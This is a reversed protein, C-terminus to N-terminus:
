FLSLYKSRALSSLFSQFIYTFTIGTTIPACPVTRLLKSLAISSNSIPHFSVIRVVTNNLDVLISHFFRPSRLLSVTGWVRTFPWWSGRTHFLECSIGMIIRYNAINTIYSYDINTFDRILTFVTMPVLHSNIEQRYWWVIRPYKIGKNLCKRSYFPWFFFDRGHQLNNEERHSFFIIIYLSDNKQPLFRKKELSSVLPSEFAFSIIEM